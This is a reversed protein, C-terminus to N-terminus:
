RVPRYFGSDRMSVMDDDTFVLHDELAVGVQELIERLANTTSVDEPSPLALGSVHNHALVVVTANMALAAEVIVRTTVQVTNVNGEGLYRDGLVKHKGDMCLICFIENRAGLFHHQLIRAYAESSDATDNLDTRISFYRRSLEKVAKLLVVTHEGVGPLKCLEEPLADLVGALNGFRDILDHALPNTDSRPNSYFLLLELLRHDQFSDPRILFEEKMRRRHGTHDAM